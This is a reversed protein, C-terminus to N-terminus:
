PRAGGSREARKLRRYYLDIHDVGLRKLSADCGAILTKRSGGRGYPGTHMGSGAKTSIVLEDRYPALDLQM